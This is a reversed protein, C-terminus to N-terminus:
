GEATSTSPAPLPSALLSTQTGAAAEDDADVSKLEAFPWASLARPLLPDAGTETFYGDVSGSGM